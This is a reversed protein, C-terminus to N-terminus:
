LSTAECWNQFYRAKAYSMNHFKNM